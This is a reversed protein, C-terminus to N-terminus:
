QRETKVMFSFVGKDRRVSQFHVEILDYVIETLIAAVTDRPILRSYRTPILYM